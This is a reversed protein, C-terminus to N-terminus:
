DGRRGERAQRAREILPGPVPVRPRNEGGYETGGHRTVAALWVAGRPDMRRGALRIADRMEHEARKVDGIAAAYGASWGLEHAADAAQKVLTMRYRSELAPDILDALAAYITQSAAVSAATVSM